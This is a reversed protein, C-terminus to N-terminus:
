KINSNSKGCEADILGSLYEINLMALKQIEPMRQKLISKINGREQWCRDIKVVVHEIDQQSNVSAIDIINDKMQLLTRIIGEIKVSSGKTMIVSPVCMGAALIVSHLKSSILMECCGIIAKLEQPTYHVTDFIKPKYRSLELIKEAAIRDDYKESATQCLMIIEFDREALYDIIYAITKYHAEAMIRNGHDYIKGQAMVQSPVLGIIMKQLNIERENLLRSAERPPAPELLFAVDAVLYVPSKIGLHRLYDYSNQERVTILYLKSLTFKAIFRTLKSHVPGISVSYLAVPRNFIRGVLMQYSHSFIALKSILWGISNDENYGDTGIHIGMDMRPYLFLQKILMAIVRLIWHMKPLGFNGIVHINITIEPFIRNIIIKDMSANTSFIHFEIDSYKLNLSTILGYLISLEGVCVYEHIGTILIKLKKHNMSM